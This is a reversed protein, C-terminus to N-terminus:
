KVTVSQANLVKAGSADVGPLGSVSVQAGAALTGSVRASGYLVTQEGLRFRSGQTNLDRVRGDLTRTKPGLVKSAVIVTHAASSYHGYVVAPLGSVPTGDV